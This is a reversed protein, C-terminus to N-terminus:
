GLAASWEQVLAVLDRPREEHLFHGCGHFVEVRSAPHTLTGREFDAAGRTAYVALVPCDRRALYARAAPRSGFADPALYMGVRCRLLVDLDMAAMLRQQRERLEDHAGPRFAGAVFRVAWATGERLLEEQAAPVGAIQEEDAGYAPDVVVLARVLDPYEVALATVAQGGMSHGVAIVPGTGLRRLLRALDAAFDRPGYGEDPRPSRGHGRLDPVIVRHRWYPLTPTWDDGDGGWGHVLLVAPDPGPHDTHHLSTPSTIM